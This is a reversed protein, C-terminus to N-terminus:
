LNKKRRMIGAVGLTGSALLVFEGPEPVSTVPSGILQFHLNPSQGEFSNNFAAFDTVNSVSDYYWGISAWGQGLSIFTHDGTATGQHSWDGPLIVRIGYVGITQSPDLSDVGPGTYFDLVYHGGSIGAVIFSQSFDAGLPTSYSVIAHDFRNSIATYTGYYTDPGGSYSLSFDPTRMTWSFAQALSKVNWHDFGCDGLNLARLTIDNYYYVSAGAFSNVDPLTITYTSNRQTAQVPEPCWSGWCQQALSVPVVLLVMWILRHLVIIVGKERELGACRSKLM